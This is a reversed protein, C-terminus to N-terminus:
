IENPKTKKRRVFDIISEQRAFLRFPAREFEICASRYRSLSRFRICSQLDCISSQNRAPHQAARARTRWECRASAAALEGARAGCFRVRNSGTAWVCTGSGPRREVPCCEATACTIRNAVSFTVLSGYFCLRTHGHRSDRPSPVLAFCLESVVPPSLQWRPWRSHLAATRCRHCVRRHRTTAAM